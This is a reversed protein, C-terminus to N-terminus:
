LPLCVLVQLVFSWKHFVCMNDMCCCILTDAQCCELLHPQHFGLLPSFSWCGAGCWHRPCSLHRARAASPSFIRVLSTDQGQTLECPQAERGPSTSDLLKGSSMMQALLVTLFGCSIFAQYSAEPCTEKAPSVRTQSPAHRGKAHSDCLTLVAVDFLLFQLNLAKCIPHFQLALSARTRDKCFVACTLSPLFSCLFCM